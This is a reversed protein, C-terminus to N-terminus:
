MGIQKFIDWLEIVYALAGRQHYAYDTLDGKLPTEPADPIRLSNREFRMTRFAASDLTGEVRFGDELQLYREDVATRM